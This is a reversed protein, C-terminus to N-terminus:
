SANSDTWRRVASAEMIRYRSSPQVLTSFERSGAVTM